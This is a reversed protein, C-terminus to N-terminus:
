ICDPLKSGPVGALVASTSNTPENPPKPALGNESAWVSPCAERVGIGSGRGRGFRQRYRLPLLPRDSEPFSLAKNAIARSCRAVNDRRSESQGSTWACRRSLLHFRSCVSIALHTRVILETGCSRVVGRLFPRELLGCALPELECVVHLLHLAVPETWRRGGVRPAARASPGDMSYRKAGLRAGLRTGLSARLRRAAEDGGPCEYIKENATDQSCCM